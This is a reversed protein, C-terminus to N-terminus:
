RTKHSRLHTRTGYKCRANVRQAVAHILYALLYIPWLVVLLQVWLMPVQRVRLFDYANTLAFLFAAALFYHAVLNVLILILTLNM